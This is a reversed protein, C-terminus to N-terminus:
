GEPPPLFPVAALRALRLRERPVFLPHEGSRVGAIAAGAYAPESVASVERLAVETRVVVNGDRRERVPAFGISFASVTGDSVLALLDDGASTRSVVFEAFLGEPDERLLTARGLPLQSRNHQAHLRVRDGRERITRSFAGREFCERYRPGGDSVEAVQGFPVVTGFLTRGDGADLSATRFLTRM